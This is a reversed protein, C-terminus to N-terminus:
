AGRKERFEAKILPEKLLKLAEGVSLPIIGPNAPTWKPLSDAHSEKIQYDQKMIGDGWDELLIDTYPSGDNDYSIQFKVARGSDTTRYVFGANTKEVYDDASLKVKPKRSWDHDIAPKVFTAVDANDEDDAELGGLLVKDSNDVSSSDHHEQGGGIVVSRNNKISWADKAHDQGGRWGEPTLKWHASFNPATIQIDRANRPANVVALFFLIALLAPHPTTM